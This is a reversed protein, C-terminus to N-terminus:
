KMGALQITNLAVVGWTFINGIRIAKDFSFAFRSNHEQTLAYSGIMIATAAMRIIYADTTLDAEVLPKGLIGVEKLGYTLGIATTTIDGLGGFFCATMNIKEKM